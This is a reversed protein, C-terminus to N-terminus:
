RQSRPPLATQKGHLYIPELSAADSLHGAQWRQYGLDALAASRRTGLMRSEIRAHQGAIVEHAASGLEGTVLLDPRAALAGQVDELTGNRPEGHQGDADYLSWVFRSRGAPLVALLPVGSARYPWAVIDLTPIGVVAVGQAIALGKAVSLGVRLGTFSGPGTAVAVAGIHHSTLGQQHLLWDVVPLLGRTQERGGPLSLELMQEGNTLAIGIQETSTDLSLLWSSAV